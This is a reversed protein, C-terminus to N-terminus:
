AEYLEPNQEKQKRITDRYGLPGDRYPGVESESRDSEDMYKQLGTRDNIDNSAYFVFAIISSFFGM